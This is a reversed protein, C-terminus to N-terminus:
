QNGIDNVITPHEDESILIVFVKFTSLALCSIVCASKAAFTLTDRWLMLEISIPFYLGEVRRANFIAETKLVRTSSM